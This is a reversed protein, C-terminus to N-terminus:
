WQTREEGCGCTKETTERHIEVTYIKTRDIFREPEISSAATISALDSVTPSSVKSKRNKSKPPIILEKM